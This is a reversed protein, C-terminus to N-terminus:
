PLVDLWFEIAGIDCRADRRLTGLQDRSLDPTTTCVLNNGMNVAPGGLGIPFFDGGPETTRLFTGLGASISQRDGFQTLDCSSDEGINYGWSVVARVAPGLQAWCNGAELGLGDNGIITNMTFAFAGGFSAAADGIDAVNRAVTTNLLLVRARDSMSLGGGREAQNNAITSNIIRLHDSGLHASIQLGGGHRSTANGVIASNRIVSTRDAPAGTIAIGAGGQAGPAFTTRNSAVTSSSMELVSETELKIGGGSLIAFNNEIRAGTLRLTSGRIYFGGGHRASGGRVVGNFDITNGSLAAITGGLGPFARNFSFTALNFVAASRELHVAGGTANDGDSGNDFWESSIALLSGDTLFVAGGHEASNSVFRVRSLELSAQRGLIAGGEGGGCGRALEMDRLTLKGGQLVSFFRFCQSSPDRDLRAGGGNILIETTVVPLATPGMTTSAGESFTFVPQTLTITDAGPTFNAARMVDILCAVTSCSFDIARAPLSLACLCIGALLLRM